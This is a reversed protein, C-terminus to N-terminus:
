DPLRFDALVPYHDSPWEDGFQRRLVVPEAVLRIGETAGLHDIAGFLNLGRDFHYTSGEVRVFHLGARELLIMTRSGARANTDGVLFVQEGANV